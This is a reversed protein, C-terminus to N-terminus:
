SRSRSSSSRPRRSATPAKFGPVHEAIQEWGFGEARAESVARTFAHGVLVVLHREAVVKALAGQRGALMDRRTRGVGVHM